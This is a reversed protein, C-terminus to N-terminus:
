PDVKRCLTVEAPPGGALPCFSAGLAVIPVTCDCLASAPARRGPVITSRAGNVVAYLTGAGSAPTRWVPAAPADFLPSVAANFRQRWDTGTPNECWVDAMSLFHQTGFRAWHAQAAAKPDAAFPIAAFSTAMEATIASHRVAYTAIYVKGADRCGWGVAWGNASWGVVPLTCSSLSYAYGKPMAHPTSDAPRAPPAASSTCPGIVERPQAQGAVAVVLAAVAVLWRLM